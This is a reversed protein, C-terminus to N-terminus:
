EFFDFFNEEGGGGAREKSQENGLTFKTGNCPFVFCIFNINVRKGLM